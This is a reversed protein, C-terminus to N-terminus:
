MSLSKSIHTYVYVYLPGAYDMVAYYHRAACMVALVKVVNPHAEMYRMVSLENNLAVMMNVTTLSSKNIAKHVSYCFYYYSYYSYYCCLWLINLTVQLTSSSSSSSSTFMFMIIITIISVVIVITIIFMMMMMMIMMMLRMTINIIIIISFMCIM